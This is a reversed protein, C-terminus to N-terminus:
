ASCSSTSCSDATCSSCASPKETASELYLQMCRPHTYVKQDEGSIPVLLAEKKVVDNQCIFCKALEKTVSDSM